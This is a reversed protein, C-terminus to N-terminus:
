LSETHVPPCIPTPILPMPTPIQSMAISSIEKRFTILVSSSVFMAAHFAIACVSPSIPATITTFELISQFVSLSSLIIRLLSCIYFIM